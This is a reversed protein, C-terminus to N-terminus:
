RCVRSMENSFAERTITMSQYLGLTILSPTVAPFGPTPHYYKGKTAGSPNEKGFSRRHVDHPM